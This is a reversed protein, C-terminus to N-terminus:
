LLTESFDGAGELNDLAMPMDGHTQNEVPSYLCGGLFVEQKRSVVGEQRGGQGRRLTGRLGWAQWEERHPM